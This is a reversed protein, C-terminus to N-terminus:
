EPFVFFACTFAQELCFHLYVELQQCISPHFHPSIPVFQVVTKDHWVNISLIAAGTQVHMAPFGSKAIGEVNKKKNKEM